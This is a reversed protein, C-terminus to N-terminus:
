LEFMILILISNRKQKKKAFNFKINNYKYFKFFKGPINGCMEKVPTSIKKNKILEYKEEKTQCKIGMWPLTGNLFYLVM